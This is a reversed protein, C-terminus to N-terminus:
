TVLHAKHTLIGVQTILLDAKESVHIFYEPPKPSITLAKALICTTLTHFIPKLLLFHKNTVSILM